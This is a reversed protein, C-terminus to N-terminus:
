KLSNEYWINKIILKTNKLHVTTMSYTKLNIYSHMTSRIEEKKEYVEIKM